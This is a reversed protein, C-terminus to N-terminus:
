TQAPGYVGHATMPIVIRTTDSTLIQLCIENKGGQSFQGYDVEVVAVGVVWCGQKVPNAKIAVYLERARRSMDDEARVVLPCDRIIEILHAIFTQWRNQDGDISDPVGIREFVTGIEHRLQRFSLVETLGGGVVEYSAIPGVEVLTDNLRKLIEMGEPSRDIMIHAAWDCFFRLIRFRLQEEDSLHELYKRCLVMLHCAESESLPERRSALHRIKRAVDHEM